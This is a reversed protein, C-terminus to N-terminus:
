MTSRMMVLMSVGDIVCIVMGIVPNFSFVLVPFHKSSGITQAIYTWAEATFRRQGFNGNWTSM